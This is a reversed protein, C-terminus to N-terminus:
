ILLNFVLPGLKSFLEDAIWHWMEELASNRIGPRLERETTMMTTTPTISLLLLSRLRLLQRSLTNNPNRVYSKFSKPSRFEKRPLREPIMVGEFGGPEDYLNYTFIM